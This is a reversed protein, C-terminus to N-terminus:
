ALPRSGGARPPALTDFAGGRHARVRPLRARSITSRSWELVRVVRAEVEDLGRTARRPPRAALRELMPKWDEVAARVDRLVNSRTSSRPSCSRTPRACSRSTSSRNPQSRRSVAMSPPLAAIAPHLDRGKEYRVDRLKGEASREVQLIPHITVHIPHGMSTLTMSLSDVLFPMDDNVTEVITHESVWGDHELTPNFVRLKATRAARDLGFRLHCLAAAALAAPDGALDETDQEYYRALFAGREVPLAAYAALHEGATCVAEIHGTRPPHEHAAKGPKM